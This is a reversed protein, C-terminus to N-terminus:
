TVRLRKSDVIESQCLRRKVARPRQLTPRCKLTSRHFDIILARELEDNWLVNDRQLDEHIIGLYDISPDGLGLISALSCINSEHRTVLCQTTRLNSRSRTRNSPEPNSLLLGLFTLQREVLSLMPSMSIALWSFGLIGFRGGIPYISPGNGPSTHGFLCRRRM